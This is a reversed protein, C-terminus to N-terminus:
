WPDIGETTGNKKSEIYFKNKLFTKPDNVIRNLWLDADQDKQSKSSASNKEENKSEPKEQFEQLHNEKESSNQDEEEGEQNEIEEKKEKDGQDGPNEQSQPENEQEQSQPDQPPNNQRKSENSDKSDAVNQDEQQSSKENQSNKQEKSSNERKKEDQEDSKESNESPKQESELMKKVFELNEKAKIHDPWKKLVEEYAAIAEKFKQQHALANGLNYAASCAVDSRSSQRFMEEAAAFNGGKYFAVGKRYPDQFTQSATEYDKGELAEKGLQESNKFYDTSYASLPSMPLLLILISAFVNERRFWWLIIPLALLLIFYFSEDWIRSKKGIVMESEAQKELDQLIMEEEDNSYHVELYRGHGIKSIESFRGKELKSLIPTGNKKIINGEHDKIPAGELTGMGMAHIVIGKEALKKATLIASSDEFGGDSIVLLAQNNGPENALMNSAMELAPSLRSGQIHVLSTDLSSLLHRITEKDDTVPAIMHPDAAFAILGVKVGKALHLLDEIKQKARILRSPKVDTANMSKSLDLLIVLTQDKSFTEMERFNWRPGALALTLLLWAIAWLLFPKWSPNKIKEHNVVLYPLLHRDIFKELQHAPPRIRYFFFYAIGILPIALGVWLWLPHAFHFQNLEM